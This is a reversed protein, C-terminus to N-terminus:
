MRWVLDDGTGLAGTASPLYDDPNATTLEGPMGDPGMSFIVPRGHYNTETGGSNYVTEVFPFFLYPNGWPDLPYLDEEEDTYVAIPAGGDVGGDNIINPRETRLDAISSNKYFATYPGKWMHSIAVRQGQTLEIFIYGDNLTKYQVFPVTATRDDNMDVMNGANDLDQLRFYRDTDAFALEVIKSLQSLEDQAAKLKSDEVRGRLMPILIMALITIITAVAIIEVASFGRSWRALCPLAKKTKLVSLVGDM